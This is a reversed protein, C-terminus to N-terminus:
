GALSACFDNLQRALEDPKALMPLHGSEITVKQTAGLNKAMADQMGIPFDTDITTQIYLRPVQPPQASRDFYIQKTEPAYSDLVLKTTAADLDNCYSKRISEAPPKTGALRIVLPMILKQPFPLSSVFSGGNAPVAGAIAVFGAVKDGLAEAICLGITSSFSHGAIVIKETKLTEAQQMAAAVYADMGANADNHPYDVTAYPVKLKSTVDRWVWSGLGAGPLLLLGISQNM